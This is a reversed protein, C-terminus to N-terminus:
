LIDLIKKAKKIIKKDLISYNEFSPYPKGKKNEYQWEMYKELYSIVKNLLVKSYNFTNNWFNSWINDPTKLKIDNDL